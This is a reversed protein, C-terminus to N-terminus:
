YGDNTVVKDPLPSPVSPSTPPPSDQTPPRWATPKRPPNRLPHLNRTLPHSAPHHPRPLRHTRSTQTPAPGSCHACSHPRARHQPRVRLPLRRSFSGLQQ